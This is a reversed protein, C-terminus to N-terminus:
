PKDLLRALSRLAMALGELFLLAFGAPLAAKILWRAPLGGPDPSVEGSVWASTVFDSAYILILVCFPLLFFVAGALDIGARWRDSVRDHRYLIDVRVHEDRHLTAAAGLLFIAAFVHWELEQLMVSGENFLYRMTVDYSVLLVLAPVLWACLAGLARGPLSLVVAARRLNEVKSVM